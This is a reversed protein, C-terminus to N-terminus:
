KEYVTKEYVKKKKKKKKEIQKLNWIWEFHYVILGQYLYFIIMKVFDPFIRNSKLPKLAHVM